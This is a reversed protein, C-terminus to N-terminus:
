EGPGGLEHRLAALRDLESRVAAAGAARRERATALARSGAALADGLRTRVENELFRRSELVRDRLDGVIRMSNVHLLERLYAAAHRRARPGRRFRLSDGLWAWFGVHTRSMMHTFFFGRRKRFGAHPELRPGGRGEEALLDGLLANALTVFRETAQAYLQEGVPEAEALFERVRREAIADAERLARARLSGDRAGASLSRDLEALAEPLARGAFGAQRAEYRRALDAETAAFLAGLDALLRETGSAAERLRAVRAETEELPRRLAAEREDIEALLAARLRRTARAGASELIEARSQLALDRLGQELAVWERTPLGTELRERASVELLADVPRGLRRELVETTFLRAEQLEAASARDAKNLVVLVHRVQAAVQVLMDAEEGTIPPDSGLVVLAADVQPLFARTVATNGAFVSGLGPTDVLCLGTELLPVPLLVEVAVVGKANEPNEREDVYSGVEDLGAPRTGGDALRVEARPSPGHRLITVATTVPPVGVPLVSRDVLANLVSSKGRKFQGLCAVFFRREALRGAAERAGTEVPTAGLERAIEALRDLAALVAGDPRTGEGADDAPTDPM